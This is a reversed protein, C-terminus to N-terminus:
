PRYRNIIEFRRTHRVQFFRCFFKFCSLWIFRLVSTEQIAMFQITNYGLRKIRPLVNDRFESYSGVKEEPTAMGIHSEYIIPIKSTPIFNQIKWNYPNEPAWIEADFVLTQKDQVMRKGWAPLRYAEGGDWIALLKYHQGHKLADPPLEIEWNGFQLKTLAFKKDKKWSSFDGILFLETANPAWERFVWGRPERHLGFYLHGTAFDQLRKGKCLFREKAMAAKQRRIIVEKFPELWPDSQIILPLDANM